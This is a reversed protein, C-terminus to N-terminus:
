PNFQVVLEENISVVFGQKIAQLSKESFDNMLVLDLSSIPEPLQTSNASKGSDGRNLRQQRQYKLISSVKTQNIKASYARQRELWDSQEITSAPVEMTSVDIVKNAMDHLTRNWANSEQKAGDVNAEITGYAPEKIANIGNISSGDCVGDAPNHLLRDTEDNREEQKDNPMCCNSINGM